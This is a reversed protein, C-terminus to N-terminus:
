KRKINKAYRKKLKKLKRMKLFIEMISEHDKKCNKAMPRTIIKKSKNKSKNKKNKKM